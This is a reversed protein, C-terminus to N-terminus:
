ESELLQGAFDILDQRDIKSLFEFSRIECATDDLCFSPTSQSFMDNLEYKLRSKLPSLDDPLYSDINLLFGGIFKDTLENITNEGKSYSVSLFLLNIRNDSGLHPRVAVYYGSNNISRMYHFYEADIIPALLRLLIYSRFGNDRNKFANVSLLGGGKFPLAFSFKLHDNPLRSKQVYGISARVLRSNISASYKQLYEDSLKNRFVLSLKTESIYADLFRRFDNIDLSSCNLESRIRVYGDIKYFSDIINDIQNPNSFALPENICADSYAIQISQDSPSLSYIREVISEVFKMQDFAESSDGGLEIKIQGDEYFNLVCNRFKQCSLPMPIMGLNLINKFIQFYLFDNGSTFSYSSSISGIAFSADYDIPFRSIFVRNDDSYNFREQSFSNHLNSDNVTSDVEGALESTEYSLANLKVQSYTVGDFKTSSSQNSFASFVFVESNAPTIANLVLSTFSKQDKIFTSKTINKNPLNLFRLILEDSNNSLFPSYDGNIEGAAKESIKNSNADNNILKFHSFFVELVEDVDGKGKETLNFFVMLNSSLADPFGIGGKFSVSINSILGRRVLVDYISFEGASYFLEDSIANIFVDSEVIPFQNRLPIRIVLNNKNDLDNLTFVNGASSADPTKIDPVSKNKSSKFNSFNSAVHESIHNEDLDTVIIVKINDSIYNEKHFTELKKTLSYLDNHQLLSESNGLFIEQKANALPALHSGIRGLKYDFHTSLGLVEADMASLENRTVDVSITPRALLDSIYSLCPVALQDDITIDFYTNERATSAIINGGNKKLFKRFGGAEPYDSSGSAIIVHEMLHALGPADHPDDQLGAGIGIIISTQGRNPKKVFLVEIGNELSFMSYMAPDLVSKEIQEVRLGDFGFLEKGYIQYILIIAGLTIALFLARYFNGISVYAMYKVGSM